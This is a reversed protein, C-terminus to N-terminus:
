TSRRRPAESAVFARFTEATQNLGNVARIVEANQALMAASQRQNVRWLVGVAICLGIIPPAALGYIRLVEGWGTPETAAFVGVGTVVQVFSFLALVKM